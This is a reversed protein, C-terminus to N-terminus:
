PGFAARVRPRLSACLRARHRACICCRRRSPRRTLIIGLTIAARHRLDVDFTARKFGGIELVAVSRCARAFAVQKLAVNEPRVPGFRGSSRPAISRTGHMLCAASRAALCATESLRFRCLRGHRSRGRRVPAPGNCARTGPDSVGHDGAGIAAGNGATPPLSRRGDHM